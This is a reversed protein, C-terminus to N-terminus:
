QPVGNIVERIGYSAYPNGVLDKDIWAQAEDRSLAVFVTWPDHCDPDQIVLFCNM